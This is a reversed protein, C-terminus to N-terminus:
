YIRKSIILEESNCDNQAEFLTLKTKPIKSRSPGVEDDVIGVYAEDLNEDEFDRHVEDTCIKMVIDHINNIVFWSLV